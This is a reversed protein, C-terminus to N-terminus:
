RSLKMHRVGLEIVVDPGRDVAIGPDRVGALHRHELPVADYRQSAGDAAEALAAACIALETGPTRSTTSSSLISRCSRKSSSWIRPAASWASMHSGSTGSSRISTVTFFPQSVSFPSTLCWCSLSAAKSSTERSRPTPPIVLSILTM